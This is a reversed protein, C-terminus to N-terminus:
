STWSAVEKSRQPMWLRSVTVAPSAVHGGPGLIEIPLALRVARGHAMLCQCGDPKFPGDSEPENRSTRPRCRATSSSRRM